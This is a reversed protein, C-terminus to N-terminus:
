ACALFVDVAQMEAELVAMAAVTFATGALGAPAPAALHPVPVTVMEAVLPAPSVISQYALGVPPDAKSLLEADKVVGDM